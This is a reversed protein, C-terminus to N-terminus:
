YDWEEHRVPLRNLEERYLPWKPMFQDMLAVFRANHTPELLHLMEHVVIYELCEPPKKVLELNLRILRAGQTCSGWMTKMIRVEFRPPQVDILRAWKQILPPIADKLARRYWELLVRQRKEEGAGPRVSLIIRRAHLEVGSRGEAEVIHLLYRRGWLYHSEREVYERPSERLQSRIRKQQTKIWGLRSIAFVRINELDMRLPASIRVRGSPPLVSLHLNKIDKKIVDVRIDGLEITQM